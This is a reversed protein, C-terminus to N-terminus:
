DNSGFTLSTFVELNLLTYLVYLFIYLVFLYTGSYFWFLCFKNYECHIITNYLLITIISMEM